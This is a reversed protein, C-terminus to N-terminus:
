PKETEQNGRTVKEEAPDLAELDTYKGADELLPKDLTLVEIQVTWDSCLCIFVHSVNKHKNAAETSPTWSTLFVEQLNTWVKWVKLSPKMNKNQQKLKFLPRTTFLIRQKREQKKWLDEPLTLNM